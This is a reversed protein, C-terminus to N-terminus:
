QQGFMKLWQEVENEGPIAPKDDADSGPSAPSKQRARKWQQWYVESDIPSAGVQRAARQVRHDSSVVLVRKPEAAQALLQEIVDDAEQGRRPHQVRIGDSPFREEAGRGDFVIVTQRAESKSLGAELATVLAQQAAYESRDTGAPFVDSAHLLNNGDILLQM